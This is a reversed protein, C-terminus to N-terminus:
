LNIETSSCCSPRVRRMKCLHFRLMANNWECKWRRLVEMERATWVLFDRFFLMRFLFHRYKVNSRFFDMLFNILLFAYFAAIFIYQLKWNVARKKWHDVAPHYSFLCIASNNVFNFSCFFVISLLQLRLQSQAMKEMSKSSSYLTDFHSSLYVCDMNINFNTSLSHHAASSSCNVVHLRM